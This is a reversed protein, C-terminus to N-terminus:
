VPQRKGEVDILYERMLKYLTNPSVRLLRAAERKNGQAAALAKRIVVEDPKASRSGRPMSRSEPELLAQVDSLDITGGSVEVSCRYLFHKLERVNRPWSHSHLFRMAQASIKKPPRGTRAAEKLFHPVYVELDELHASLPPLIIKLVALREYLDSRFRGVEVEEDLPLNSSSIVRVDAHLETNSGLPRFRGHELARLVMPQLKLPLTAVDDLLLSSGDAALFVGQHDDVAGTFAGKRHGFLTSWATDGLGGVPVIQLAHKRRLSAGHIACAAMDKGTGTEGVLLVPWDEAAARFIASRVQRILPHHGLFYDELNGSFASLARPASEGKSERRPDSPNEGVGARVHM